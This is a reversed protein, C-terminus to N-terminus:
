MSLSGKRFDTKGIIANILVPTGTRSIELARALAGEVEGPERIVIGAGGCGEAVKHYDMYSLTCGTDDGLIQVQDRAIQTWGADNGVVAIIGLGHRACTDLEMISFGAAGDGYLLWVDAGPRHLKAGMAFGAGVGLTGFVGPDLWSLPRRPRVTYSATAVFDGGDGILISDDTLVNDIARCLAIPNLSDTSEAAMADIERDRATDRERLSALWPERRASGAPLSRALRTLFTHPDAHVGLTPKRNKQLDEESLNVGIVKARAVHSGYDLRFDCPVGALVVFDAGRLAERRKHRMFLPHETGLLGRAMGSLYVPVGIRDVAQVLESVRAPHLMAQSGIVMVPRQAAGLMRVASLIENDTPATPVVPAADHITPEDPGFFLYSLHGRIYLSQAHEVLNKDPKDTKAQYWERVTAEDYLLDLALEVFVPGPVDSRAVRFAKELAPVVERLNNPRAAWKVHPRILEMQDIDQLSGRGRLMTATAGGIVVLPSQAQQANKVATITNAVGPGATVAAVAPVGTLRAVSDAAFAANVEHRTDIVRIGRRKCEILIPSIHGGCLTFLFQVGQSKLVEAVRSGGNM